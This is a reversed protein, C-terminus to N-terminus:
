LLILLNNLKKLVMKDPPLNPHYNLSLILNCSDFAEFLYVNNASSFSLIKGEVQFDYVFDKYHKSYYNKGNVIYYHRHCTFNYFIYETPANEM